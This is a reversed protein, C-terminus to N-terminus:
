QTVKLQVRKLDRVIVNLGHPVQSSAPNSQGETTHSGCRVAYCGLNDSINYWSSLCLDSM